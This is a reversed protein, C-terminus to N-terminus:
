LDFEEKLQLAHLDTEFIMRCADGAKAFDRERMGEFVLRHYPITSIWINDAGRLIEGYSDLTKVFSDIMQELAANETMKRIQEHFAYDMKQLYLGRQAAEEMHCLTGEVGTLDLEKESYCLQEVLGRELLYKIELLDKYDARWLRLDVMSGSSDARVFAGKGVRVEIIGENEMVRLAERVTNRSTSFREALVREAPLKEGAKLDNIQIYDIIADAIKRHLSDKSIPQLSLTRQDM